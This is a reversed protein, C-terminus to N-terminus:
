CRRHFLQLWPLHMFFKTYTHHSQYPLQQSVQPPTPIQYCQLNNAQSLSGVEDNNDDATKEEDFHEELSGGNDAPQVHQPLKLAFKVGCPFKALCSLLDLGPPCVNSLFTTVDLTFLAHTIHPPREAPDVLQQSISFDCTLFGIFMLNKFAAFQPISDFIFHRCHSAALSGISSPLAQEYRFM